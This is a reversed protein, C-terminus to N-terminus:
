DDRAGAAIWSQIMGVENAPLAGGGLPMREGCPPTATVKSYFLSTEPHGPVVFALGTCLKSISTGSLLVQYAAERDGDAGLHLGGNSILSAPQSHCSDCKAPTNAPFLAAYVESFTAAQPPQETPVTCAAFLSSSLALGGIARM